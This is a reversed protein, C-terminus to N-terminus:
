SKIICNLGFITEELYELQFTNWLWPSQIQYIRANFLGFSCSAYLVICCVVVHFFIHHLHEKCNYKRDGMFGMLNKFAKVASKSDVADDLKTLSQHIPVETHQLFGMAMANKNMSLGFFKSYAWDMPNRLQPCSASFDFLQGYMDLFIDKLRIERNVVRDKDGIENARKLQLRVFKDEPLSLLRQIEELDNSTYNYVKAEALCQEMTKKELLFLVDAAWPDIKAGAADRLKTRVKTEVVVDETTGPMDLIADSRKIANVFQDFYQLPDMKVLKLMEINLLVREQLKFRRDKAKVLDYSEFSFVPRFPSIANQSKQIVEDLWDSDNGDQLAPQCTKKIFKLAKLFKRGVFKRAMRQAVPIVRDLCLNRLLELIRHEEARYLIMTNGIAVKSFNQNISNLITRCVDVAGGGSNVVAVRGQKTKLLPRYRGAFRSHTLRFPYGTKRIQVAEFVGAYTLQELCIRTNFLKPKKEQNPKICRIYHPETTDCVTMLNTLQKRFYGGLTEMRRPNNDKEPFLEKYNKHNAQSMLDYLDRFVNDRNKDCFNTSDYIVSGAYHNIMFSSAGHQNLRSRDSVWNPHSAHNSACKSLWKADDGKPLRVEEDLLNLLGHPKKEILDLVPQNDIFAVPEYPVEESLYTQEEEKFTHSNFHQQLKENTFNICLQEFGNKEFIEFGFIDLVQPPSVTCPFLRHLTLLFSCAHFVHM